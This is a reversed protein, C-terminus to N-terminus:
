LAIMLISFYRTVIAVKRSYNQETVVYNKNEYNFSSTRPIHKIFLDSM